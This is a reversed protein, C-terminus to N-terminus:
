KVQPRAVPLTSPPNDNLLNRGAVWPFKVGLFYLSPINLCILYFAACTKFHLGTLYM